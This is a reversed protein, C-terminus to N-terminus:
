RPRTPVRISTRSTAGRPRPGAASRRTTSGRSRGARTSSSSASRARPTTSATSRATAGSTFYTITVKNALSDQIEILKGTPSSWNYVFTHGELTQLQWHFPSTTAQRLHKFFHGAQPTYYDFGGTTHSFTFRVDQGSTLRVIATTGSKDLWSQFNHTWRTGMAKRYNVLGANELQSFYRRQFTLSPGFPVAPELDPPLSYVVQGRIPSVDGTEACSMPGPCHGLVRNSWCGEDVRGDLDDDVGNGCLETAWATSTQVLLVLLGITIAAHM